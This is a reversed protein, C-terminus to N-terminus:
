QKTYGSVLVYGPDSKTFLTNQIIFYKQMVGFSSYMSTLASMYTNLAFTARIPDTDAEALNAVVTKYAEIRNIMVLHYPSASLPVSMELLDRIVSELNHQKITLSDLVSADRNTGYAKIIVLDSAGVKEKLAKSYLVGLANGYSKISSDSENKALHLDNLTYTKFTIKSSEGQVITNALENQESTTLTEKQKAYAGAVYLNKAFSSTLNNPDNLRAKTADDVVVKSAAEKTTTSMTANILDRWDPTGNRDRDGQLDALEGSSRLILGQRKPTKLGVYRAPVVLSLAILVLLTALVTLARKTTMDNSPNTITNM